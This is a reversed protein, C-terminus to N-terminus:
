NICYLSFQFNGGEHPTLVASFGVNQWNLDWRLNKQQIRCQSKQWVTQKLAVGRRVTFRTSTWIYMVTQELRNSPSVVSLIKSSEFCLNQLPRMKKIKYGRVKNCFYKFLHHLYCISLIFLQILPQSHKELHSQIIQKLM